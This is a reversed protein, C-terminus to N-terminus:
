ARRGRRAWLQRLFFHPCLLWRRGLFFSFYHIATGRSNSNKTKLFCVTWHEYQVREVAWKSRDLLSIWIRTDPTPSDAVVTRASRWLDWLRWTTFATVSSTETLRDMLVDLRIWVHDHYQHRVGNRHRGGFADRLSKVGVDPRIYLHRAIAALNLRFVDTWVVVFTTGTLTMLVTSASCEPEWSITCSLFLCLERRRSTSPTLRSWSWLRLMELLSEKARILEKWRNSTLFEMWM